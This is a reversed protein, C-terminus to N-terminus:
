PTLIVWGTIQPNARMANSSGLPSLYKSRAVSEDHEPQDQEDHPGGEDQERDVEEVEAKECQAKSEQEDHNQGDAQPAEPWM